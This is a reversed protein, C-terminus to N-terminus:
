EGISVNAVFGNKPDTTDTYFRVYMMSGSSKVTGPMERCFRDILEANESGGDRIEVAATKCSCFL